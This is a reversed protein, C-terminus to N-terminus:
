YLIAIVRKCLYVILDKSILIAGKMPSGSYSLNRTSGIIDIDKLYQKAIDIRHKFYLQKQAEDSFRSIEAEFKDLFHLRYNEKSKATIPKNSSYDYVLTCPITISCIKYYKAIRVIFEIDQHRKFSEDFGNVRELIERRFLLTSGAATDINMSLMDYLLNGSKEANYKVKLGGHYVRFFSSYAAGWSDDLRDLMEVQLRIKHPLFEDDDDLLAIFEGSAARLGTNRAASGNRNKEHPIYGFNELAFYKSIANCTSKQEETGIGNDDIVIIEINKYDQALVSDIARCLYQHSKYTPIIVTVKKM